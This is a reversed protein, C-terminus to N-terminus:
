QVPAPKAPCIEFIITMGRRHLPADTRDSMANQLVNVML